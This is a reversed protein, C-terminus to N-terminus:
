VIGADHAVGVSAPQSIRRHRRASQRIGWAVGEVASIRLQRGTSVSKELKRTAM